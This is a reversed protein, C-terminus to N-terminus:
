RMGFRWTHHRSTGNGGLGFLCVFLFFFFFIHAFLYVFLFFFFFFFIITHTHIVFTFGDRKMENTTTIIQDIARPIIGLDLDNISINNNDNNNNNNTIQLLNNIEGIDGIMTHTKGSSICSEITFYFFSYLIFYEYVYYIYMYIIHLGEVGTVFCVLMTDM